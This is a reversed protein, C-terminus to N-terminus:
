LDIYDDINLGKTYIEEERNYTGIFENEELLLILLERAQDPECNVVKSIVWFM